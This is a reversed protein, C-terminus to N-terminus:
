HNFKEFFKKISSYVIKMDKKTMKAHFPLSIQEKGWKESIPCSNVKYKKKYYSLETISRFNVTVFIKEQLLTEILKDRYKVNVGIPFLYFDRNKNKNAKPFSLQNIKELLSKFDSYIDKKIKAIKSYNIIQDELISANIDSLNAKFGYKYVDWPIYKDNVFRKFAPKTMGNNSISRIKDSFKKHNTIIAGGEGCTISKTAYFSFVVFDSYKGLLNNHYEGCFAHASDEIIMINKNIKNKLNKTPFLNGYLHVPMIIKTKKTIKKLCDNIDMLKTLPDIDAFVIKAGVMEVVNACAVFTCAPIIIEDKPKLNLALLISILGNTWSNTLIAYKKNFKKCMLKEVKECVPGSTLYPSSLTKKLYNKRTSLGHKYFPIM